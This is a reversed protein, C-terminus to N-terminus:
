RRVKLFYSALLALLSKWNFKSTLSAILYQNYKEGGKNFRYSRYLASERASIMRSYEPYQTKLIGCTLFHDNLANFAAYRGGDGTVNNSHRRYRGLEEAIYHIERGSAMCEIWYLWDSAIRLRSDFGGQPSCDHRVMVACAGNFCGYKILKRVDGQQPASVQSFKYLTKGTSDDFVDLDHYSIACNGHSEMYRVQKSIKNPLMLDDGGLFAIYKGKCAALGRNANGTIGLNPGGVLPVIKDPYQRAYDLIIEATGDTSGDDAVVIEINPYDQELVSALTEHIFQKQNYTIIHVSVLPPSDSSMQQKYKKETM